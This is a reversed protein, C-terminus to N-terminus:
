RHSSHSSTLHLGLRPFARILCKGRRCSLMLAAGDDRASAHINVVQVEYLFLVHRPSGKSFWDLDTRKELITQNVLNVMKTFLHPDLKVTLEKPLITDFQQGDNIVGDSLGAYGLSENQLCDMSIHQDIPGSNGTLTQMINEFM